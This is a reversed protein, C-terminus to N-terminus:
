PATESPTEVAAPAKKVTHKKKKVGSKKSKATPTGAAPAAPLLPKLADLRKQASERWEKVGTYKLIRKYTEAAQV